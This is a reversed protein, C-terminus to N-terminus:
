IQPKQEKRFVFNYFHAQAKWFKVQQYNEGEYYLSLRLLDTEQPSTYNFVTAKIARIITQNCLLCV